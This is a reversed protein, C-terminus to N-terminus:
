GLLSLAQARLAAPYSTPLGARAYVRMSIILGLMAKATPRPEISENIDGSEQGEQILRALLKEHRVLSHRVIEGVEEDSPALELAANVVLCGRTRSPKRSCEGNVADFMMEIADRPAIGDIAREFETLRERIYRDIAQVYVEHKSTFTAYFSGKQIGMRELLKTMSTAEYGNEWFAEMARDLAENVDFQKTSPM